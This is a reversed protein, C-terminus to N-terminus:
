SREAHGTGRAHLVTLNLDPYQKQKGIPPRDGSRRYRDRTGGARARRKSREVEIRHLGKVAVEEMEDAVTHMATEQWDTTVPESWSIRESKRRWASCSMSTAKGTALTCAVHRIVSFSRRKGGPERLWRVSEKKEIPVRTPQDQAEAGQMGKFKARRWFKIAALGLPLGETTFVLSSHMLIGCVRTVCQAVDKDDVATFQERTIGIAGQTKGKTTSSPRTRCAGPGIPQSSLGRERTSQFQGGLIDGETVRENAFFRYAAKTNAWEQCLCRSAKVWPTGRDAALLKRLRKGPSRQDGVRLWGFEDDLWSTGAADM